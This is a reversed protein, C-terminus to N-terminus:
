ETVITAMKFILLKRTISVMEFYFCWTQLMTICYMTSGDVKQWLCFSLFILFLSLDCENKIITVNDCNSVNKSHRDIIHKTKKEKLKTICAAGQQSETKEYYSHSNPVCILQNNKYSKLLGYANSYVLKFEQAIKSGKFSSILVEFYLPEIESVINLSIKIKFLIAADHPLLGEPDNDNM